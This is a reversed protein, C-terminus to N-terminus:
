VSVYMYLDSDLHSQAGQTCLSVNNDCKENNIRVTFHFSDVSFSFFFRIKQFFPFQLIIKLFSKM